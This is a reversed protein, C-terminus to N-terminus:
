VACFKLAFRNLGIWVHGDCATCGIVACNRDFESHEVYMEGWYLM